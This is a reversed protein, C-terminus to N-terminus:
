FCDAKFANVMEVKNEQFKGSMDLLLTKGASLYMWGAGM